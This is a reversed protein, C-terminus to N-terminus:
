DPTNGDPVRRHKEASVAELRMRLKELLKEHELLVAMVM